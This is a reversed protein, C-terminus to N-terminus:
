LDPRCWWWEDHRGGAGLRFSDSGVFIVGLLFGLIALLLAFSRVCLLLIVLVFLLVLIHVPELLLREFYALAPVIPGGNPTLATPASLTLLPERSWCPVQYPSQCYLRKQTYHRGAGPWFKDNHPSGSAARYTSDPNGIWRRATQQCSLLVM